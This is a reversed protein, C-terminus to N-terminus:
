FGYIKIFIGSTGVQCALRRGYVRMPEYLLTAAVREQFSGVRTLVSSHFTSAVTSPSLLMHMNLRYAGIYKDHCSINQQALVLNGNGTDVLRTLVGHDLTRRYERGPLITFKKAATLVSGGWARRRSRLASLRESPHAACDFNDVMRDIYLEVIYKLLTSADIISKWDRSVKDHPSPPPWLFSTSLMTSTLLIQHSVVRGRVIDLPPLCSFILILIEVPCRDMPGLNNVHLCSLDLQSPPRERLRSLSPPPSIFSSSAIRAM